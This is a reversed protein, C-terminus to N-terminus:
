TRTSEYEKELFELMREVLSEQYVVYDGALVEAPLEPDWPLKMASIRRRQEETLPIGRPAHLYTVTDLFWSKFGGSYRRWLGLAIELGKGDFDGSYYIKTGVASLQDLLQLAAVSPQGSTCILPPPMVRQWQDLIASFVTPNEVVFVRGLSAWELPQDFFRLPLTLPTMFANSSRFVEFRPDSPILELGTVTVFSSLDDEELGAQQFVARVKEAHYERKPLRLVYLIGQYLLRGLGRDRDLGHPDGTLWAAFVPRRRRQGTYWPLNDLGRICSSLVAKAQQFDEQYLALFTRYGYAQRSALHALWQVTQERQALDRAETFMQAWRNEEREIEQQKTTVAGGSYLALVEELGLAFRSEKFIADLQILSVSVNELGALDRGLLGGIVQQEEVTAGKLLIAGGVRGLAHYKRWVGKLLRRLGPQGLYNLLAQHDSMPVRKDRRSM